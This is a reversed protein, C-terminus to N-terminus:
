IWSTWLGYALTSFRQVWSGFPNKSLRGGNGKLIVLHAEGKEKCHREKREDGEDEKRVRESLLNMYRTGRAENRIRYRNLALGFNSEGGKRSFM